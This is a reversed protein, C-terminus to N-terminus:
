LANLADLARVKVTLREAEESRTTILVRWKLSEPPLIRVEEDRVDDPILIGGSKSYLRRM